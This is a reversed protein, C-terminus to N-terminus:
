NLSDLVDLFRTIDEDNTYHAVSIRVGSPIQVRRQIVQQDWLTESLKVGDWGVLSFTVIGSSDNWDAPTHVTVGPRAGLEQKLASSVSAVHQHIASWGLQEQYSIADAIASYLHWNRTGFEFRWADSRFSWHDTDIGSEAFFSRDFRPEVSGDGTYIPTLLDTRDHRVYLFGTGKPGCLWKHGNGTMFDCGIDRVDVPFQGLSQAGDVLSLVDSAECIHCMEEAPLRRGTECSVHSFIALAVDPASVADKFRQLLEADSSDALPVMTITAGSHRALQALPHLVAPHEETTTVITSGAPLDLGAVVYNIGDSANRTLAIESPQANMLRALAARGREYGEVAKAQGAHGYREYHSIAELHCSLVPEHMVGVTGTNLYCLESLVAVDRRISEIPYSGPAGNV